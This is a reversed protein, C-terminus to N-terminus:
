GCIILCPSLPDYEQTIPPAEEEAPVDCRKLALDQRKGEQAGQLGMATTRVANRWCVRSQGSRTRYCKNRTIASDGPVELKRPLEKVISLLSAQLFTQATVAGLV